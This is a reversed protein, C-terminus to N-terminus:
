MSLRLPEVVEGVVVREGAKGVARQEVLAQRLVHLAAPAVSAASASTM